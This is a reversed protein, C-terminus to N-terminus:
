CGTPEAQDKRMKWEHTCLDPPLWPLVNELWAAWKEPETLGQWTPNNGNESPLSASNEAEGAKVGLLVHINYLESGPPHWPRAIGPCSGVVKEEM